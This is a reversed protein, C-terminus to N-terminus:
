SYGFEYKSKLTKSISTDLVGDGNFDVNIASDEITPRIMAVNFQQGCLRIAATGDPSLAYEFVEFNGWLKFKIKPSTKSVKNASKYEVIEGFPNNCTANLLMLNGKVVTPTPVLTAEGALTEDGEATEEAAEEATKVCGFLFLAAAVLGLCLLVKRM